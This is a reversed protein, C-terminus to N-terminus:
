QILFDFGCKPCLCPHWNKGKITLHLNEPRNDDKIGNKHHVIENRTLYRGIIKEMILRHELVYNHLSSPHNPSYIRIYGMANKTRGGKWFYNKSGLHRQSFKERIEPSRFYKKMRKGLKKKYEKTHKFIGKKGKNWAPKGKLHSPYGKQFGCQQPHKYVGTPM